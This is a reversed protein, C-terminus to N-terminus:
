KLKKARCLMDKMEYVLDKYSSQSDYDDLELSELELLKLLVISDKFLNILTEQKNKSTSVDKYVDHLFEVEKFDVLLDDYTVNGDMTTIAKSKSKIVIKKNTFNILKIDCIENTKKYYIKM